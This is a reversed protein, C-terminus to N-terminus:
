QVASSDLKFSGGGECSCSLIVVERVEGRGSALGAATRPYKV